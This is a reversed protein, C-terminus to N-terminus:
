HVSLYQRLISAPKGLIEYSQWKCTTTMTFIAAGVVYDDKVLESDYWALQEIYNGPGDSGMGQQEWYAIFDKWGKGKPGPHNQVMGDIGCETIVLPVELGAPILHQRYAKRYRLTLWGGEGHVGFRMTPASYEHLGLFGDHEGAAELAPFFHPWLELKPHGTGFNGVVSRIGERALLRVREAELEALQKMQEADVTVPENYGEWADFIERLRPDAAASLIQEVLQQASEGPEVKALDIQDMVVRGVFLTHPSIAKLQGLFDPEQCITKIVAVNGTRMLELIQPHHHTICLGLKTPPGPPFPTATPSPTSTPTPSKKVQTPPSRKTQRHPTRTTSGASYILPLDVSFPSPEVTQSPPRTTAQEEIRITRHDPTPPPSTWPLLHRCSSLVMSLMTSGISKLFARRGMERQHPIM